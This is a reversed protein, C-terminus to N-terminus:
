RGPVRVRVAEQLRLALVTGRPLSVEKGATALVVATGAGGGAAAGIAAGEKGGVLAGVIAGGVAPFAIKEADEQKTAPAIRTVQAAIPYSTSGVRLTRFRLALQARGKVKGSPEVATVHGAITSGTPLVETGGITVPATVTATVPDEVRSTKSHVATELRASVPTGAPITVERDAPVAVPAPDAALSRGPTADASCGAAAVVAAAMVVRWLSPKM